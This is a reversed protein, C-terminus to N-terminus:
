APILSTSFVLQCVSISWIFSWNLFCVIRLKVKFPRAIIVLILTMDKNHYLAVMRFIGVLNILCILIRSRDNIHFLLICKIRWSTSSNGIMFPSISKKLMVVFTFAKLILCIKSRIKSLFVRQISLKPVNNAQCEGWLWSHYWVIYQNALDM